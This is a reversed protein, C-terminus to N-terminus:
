TSYHQGHSGTALVVPLAISNNIYDTHLCSLLIILISMHLCRLINILISMHLCRSSLQFLSYTNSCNTTNTSVCIVPQSTTVLITAVVNRENNRSFTGLDERIARFIFKRSFLSLSRGKEQGTSLGASDISIPIM